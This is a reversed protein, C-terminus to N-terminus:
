SIFGAPVPFQDSPLFPTTTEQTSTLVPTYVCCPHAQGCPDAARLELPLAESLGLFWHQTRNMPRWWNSSGRTLPNSAMKTKGDEAPRREHACFLLARAISM